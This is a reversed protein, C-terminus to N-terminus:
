LLALILRFKPAPPLSSLKGHFLDLDSVEVAERANTDKPSVLPEPHGLTEPLFWHRRPQKAHTVPHVTSRLSKLFL